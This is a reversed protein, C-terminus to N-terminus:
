LRPAFGGMMIGLGTFAGAFVATFVSIIIAVLFSVIITAPIAALGMQPLHRCSPHVSYRYRDGNDASKPNAIRTGDQAEQAIVTESM